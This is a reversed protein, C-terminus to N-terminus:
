RRTKRRKLLKGLGLSGLLLLGLEPGTQPLTFSTVIGKSENGAADKATLKFFYKIGPILNGVQTSTATPDIAAGTGYNTGDNGQYLMYHALTGATNPSAKWILKVMDAGAKSASLQSADEPASTLPTQTQQTGSAEQTGASKGGLFVTANNDVNILNNAKDKLDVAYLNYNIAKQEETTLTVSKMDDSLTVSKITLVKDANNEETIIFNDTPNQSLQIPENFTVILHTNDPASASVLNPGTTDASAQQTQQTAATTPIVDSGTFVATDSTGSVIPNGALDKIQLGATVIYNTGADQQATTLLITKGTSDATYKVAKRVELLAQTSDNKITFATEPSLTPLTVAESFVVKVTQRDVATASVVTPATSDASGHGPTASVEVSYNESENGAADYATVAFYYTTGNNLGKVTTTLVDGADIPGLDYTDGDKVVPKTGYYIKYGKVGVNDTAANWTLTVQSEGAVAKVKEVDAPPTTDAAALQSTEAPIIDAAHVTPAATIMATVLLLMVGALTATPTKQSPENTFAPNKTKM